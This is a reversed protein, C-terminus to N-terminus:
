NEENQLKSYVRQAEEDVAKFTFEGANYIKVTEKSETLKNIEPIYRRLKLQGALLMAYYRVVSDPDNLYMGPFDDACCLLEPRSEGIRVAARLVGRRLMQEDHFSMIVPAIDAFNDPSNRVIEGLMEPASWPNNGSEERMMWLIRQALNRIGECDTKAAEGALLGLAEIARWCMVDEKDYALGILRRFVGKLDGRAGSILADFNKEELLKIIEQKNL